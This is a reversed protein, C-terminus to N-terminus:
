TPKVLHKYSLRPGMIFMKYDCTHKNHVRDMYSLQVKLNDYEMKIPVCNQLHFITL